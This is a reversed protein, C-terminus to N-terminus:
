IPCGIKLLTEREVQAEEMLYKARTRCADALREWREPHYESEQLPPCSSLVKTDAKLEEIMYKIMELEGFDGFLAAALASGYNGYEIHANVEAGHKVLFKVCDLNNAYTAAILASGFRGHELHTNVEAGHEVLLQTCELHGENAAAALASGYYGHELRANVEAGHKILLRTCELKGGMATAALASGFNGCKLHANVGAGHEILYEISDLSGRAAAAALPSGFNGTKTMLNAKAGSEVLLKVRAAGSFVAAAELACGFNCGSRCGPCETNPDAQKELLLKVMDSSVMKAAVCLASSDNGTFNPHSGKDMLMTAMQINGSNIAAILATQALSSELRQNPESGRDILDSCLEEHGYKAAIALLDLGEANVQSIDLGKDWWGRLLGHLGLVCIGFIPNKAPLIDSADLLHHEDDLHVLRLHQNWATGQSQIDEIWAQYALSASRPPGDELGFFCKLLRQVEEQGESQLSTSRVHLLWYKDTYLQLPHHLEWFDDLNSESRDFQHYRVLKVWDRKPAKRVSWRTLLNSLLVAAVDERARGSWDKHEKEFYEAVSAHSFRWTRLHSDKVILHRCISEVTSEFGQPIPEPDLIDENKTDRRRHLWVAPLLVDSTLAIKACLVWKVTLKLIEQDEFKAEEYIERYAATLNEPLEGLRKKIDNEHHLGKVREWQLAAWRFRYM